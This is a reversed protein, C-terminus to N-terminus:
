QAGASIRLGEYKSTQYSQSTRSWDFFQKCQEFVTEGDPLADVAAAIPPISKLKLPINCSERVGLKYVDFRISPDGDGLKTPVGAFGAYLNARYGL